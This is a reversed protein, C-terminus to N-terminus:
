PVKDGDGALAAPSRSANGHERGFATGHGRHDATVGSSGPRGNIVEAEFTGAHGTVPITAALAKASTDYVLVGGATYDPM